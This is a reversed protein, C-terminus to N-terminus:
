HHAIYAERKRKLESKSWQMVNTKIDRAMAGLDDDHKDVLRKMIQVDDGRLKAVSVYPKIDAKAILSPFLTTLDKKQGEAFETKFSKLGQDKEDIPKQTYDLASKLLNQGEKSHKLSPKLNVKLGM